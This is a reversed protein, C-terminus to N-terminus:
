ATTTICTLFAAVALAYVALAAVPGAWLLAVAAALHVAIIGFFFAVVLGISTLFRRLWHRKNM